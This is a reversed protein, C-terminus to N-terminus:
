FYLYALPAGVEVLNRGRSCQIRRVSSKGLVQFSARRRAFRNASDKVRRPLKPDLRFHAGPRAPRTQFRRSLAGLDLKGGNPERM